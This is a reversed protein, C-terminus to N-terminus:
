AVNGLRETCFKAMGYYFPTQQSRYVGAMHRLEDKSLILLLKVKPAYHYGRLFDAAAEEFRERYKRTLKPM